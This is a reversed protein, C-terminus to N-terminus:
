QKNALYLFIISPIILLLVKIYMCIDHLSSSACNFFSALPLVSLLPHCSSYPPPLTRTYTLIRPLASLRALALLRSLSQPRTTHTHTVSLSLSLSLSLSPARLDGWTRPVSRLRSITSVGRERPQVGSHPHPHPFANMTVRASRLLDNWTSASRPLFKRTLVYVPSPPDCTALLPRLYVHHGRFCHYPVAHYFIYNCQRWSPVFDCATRAFFRQLHDSCRPSTFRLTRSASTTRPPRSRLLPILRYQSPSNGGAM